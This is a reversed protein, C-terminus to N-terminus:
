TAGPHDMPHDAEALRGPYDLAADVWNDLTSEPSEGIYNFVPRGKCDLIVIQPINRAFYKIVLKNQAWSWGYEFDIVVFHVRDHHKNYLDVTTKAQRKANYCFEAYFVIYNVMGPKTGEEMHSGFILPGQHGNKKYNLNPNLHLHDASFLVIPTMLILMVSIMVRLKARVM